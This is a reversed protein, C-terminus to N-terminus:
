MDDDDTGAAPSEAADPVNRPDPKVTVPQTYTQGDVTLRVTYDGPKLTPTGRFFAMAGGENRPAPTGPPHCADVPPPPAPGRRFGGGFGRTSALNLAFRHMGADASPPPAPEEWYAQVNITESDVPKVPADSAACVAVKGTSDVLELKVPTSPASKLWYYALVGAPPNLEQPEEHPLPTGDQGGQHIAWTDGPKFLYAQAAEIEAGKEAIQRLASMQDLVWFGRGHTAVDLDDHHVVLDRVSTVPMNLELPQWDDGDNFSVYVRLETAAYLLGKQDPDEKVSNVFAGDPIGKVVSQWTKGGDHTRYIYPKMDALRHRDVSAYATNADFHGAEVQSVKSWATLEPPTVNKWNAGDDNTVYILGDDTGAWVTKADLPSPGITYVVGFRTTMPEDIDKATIADLAKPVEPNMRSLDPSIKEWTKGRDRSRFIFQNSYYLAEDAQSFVEPLTWTKRNPDDRDPPPLEGSPLAVNLGQNCRNANGYLIDADKPDPVVTDAEGALCTPEWNRFSSCM